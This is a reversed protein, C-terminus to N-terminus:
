CDLAEYEQLEIEEDCISSYFEITQLSIGDEGGRIDVDKAMATECVMKMIYDREMGYIKFSPRQLASPLNYLELLSIRIQTPIQQTIHMGLKSARGRRRERAAEGERATEGSRGLETAVGVFPVEVRRGVKRKPSKKLIMTIIYIDHELSDDDPKLEYPQECRGNPDLRSEGNDLNCNIGNFYSDLPMTIIMDESSQGDGGDINNKISNQPELENFTHVCKPNQSIGVISTFDISQIFLCDRWIISDLSCMDEGENPKEVKDIEMERKELM